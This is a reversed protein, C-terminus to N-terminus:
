QLVSATQVWLKSYSNRYSAMLHHAFSIKTSAQISRTLM